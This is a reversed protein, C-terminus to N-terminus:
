EIRIKYDPNAAPGTWDPDNCAEIALVKAAGAYKTEKIKGARMSGFSVSILVMMSFSRATIIDQWCPYDDGLKLDMTFAPIAPYVSLWDTETSTGVISRNSRKPHFVGTKANLQHYYFDDVLALVARFKVWPYDDPVKLNIGQKLEPIVLQAQMPSQSLAYAIDPNVVSDFAKNVNFEYGKLIAPNKSLIIHRQGTSSETDLEQIPLLKANLIGHHWGDKSLAFPSTADMISRVLRARGGFESMNKRAAPKKKLQNLTPGGAKRVVANEANRPTYVSLRGKSKRIRGMALQNITLFDAVIYKFYYIQISSKVIL